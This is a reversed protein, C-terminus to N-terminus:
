VWAEAEAQSPRRELKGYEATAAERVHQMRVPQDADAALFAANLAITRINGGAMRLRGLREMDLGETPAGPPFARRWIASRQAADPFPFEVAFRIRRLFASDLAGRMNTTLIALGRYAEMRQLLYSVEINAYRDHSDKVESRSGFLSDAEDFLLIAGNEEAADFVRRLNDETQGIYKSVVRSLDIHYLDLRLENALVEAALTKGTGSPGHFLAGIGLGRRSTRGFGWAEYVKARQRLQAAIAHLTAQQPAPLVLDDWRQESDIRQALGDLAGRLRRRCLRWVTEGVDLPPSGSAEVRAQAAIAQLSPLSLSFQSAAAQLTAAVRGDTALDGLSDRLVAIQELMLPHGVDLIVAPRGVVRRAERAQLIVPGSARELVTALSTAAARGAESDAPVDDDGDILLVGLGSLVAEREWLRLLTDLDAAGAPLRAAGLRAARLGLLRAAEAAVPQCDAASGCLQVIPLGPGHSAVEWVAAVQAALAAHSAVLGSAVPVVLPELQVALRADIQNFGALFHLVREDIRLPARTLVPGPGPEILRWHRLPAAATIASWHPEELAALALAFNPTGASRTDHEGSALAAHAAACLAPVEGDLEMGACLLLIDREFPSLGFASVVQALASSPAEGADERGAAPETPDPQSTRRALRRKVRALQALLDAHNALPWAASGDPSPPPTM